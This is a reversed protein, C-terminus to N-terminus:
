YTKEQMWLLVNTWFACARDRQNQEDLSFRWAVSNQGPFVVCLWSRRIEAWPADVKVFDLVVRWKVDHVSSHHSWVGIEGAPPCTQANWNEEVVSLAWPRWSNCASRSNVLRVTRTPIKISEWWWSDTAFAGTQWTSRCSDSNFCLISAVCWTWTIIVTVIGTHAVGGGIWQM